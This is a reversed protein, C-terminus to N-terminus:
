EDPLRTSGAKEYRRAKTTSQEDDGNGNGGVYLDEITDLLGHKVALEELRVHFTIDTQLTREVVRSGLGIILLEQEISIWWVTWTM